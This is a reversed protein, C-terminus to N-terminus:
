AEVVVVVAASPELVIKPETEPMLIDITELQLRLLEEEAAVDVVFTVEDSAVVEVAAVVVVECQEMLRQLLLRRNKQLNRWSPLLFIGSDDGM